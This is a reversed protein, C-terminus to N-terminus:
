PTGSGLLLNRLTEAQSTAEVETQLYRSVSSELGRGQLFLVMRRALAAREELANLAAWLAREVHERQGVDLSDATLRHGVRCEFDLAGNRPKEELRGGCDPCTLWEERHHPPLPLAVADHEDAPLALRQARVLRDLLAGIEALRVTHDVDVSRLASLPMQPCAADAPDQVVAVGRMDKISSLGATGDDLAGTLVVGIVKPGYASAASRFLADISPRHRNQRPGHTTQMFGDRVLLHRDPPAVYIHGAELEAGDIAHTAPLPGARDLIAPLFSEGLPRIHQVICVAAAFDHPLDAVLRSLAEVGGMSAGIVVLRQLM